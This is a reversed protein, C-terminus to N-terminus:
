TAQQSYSFLPQYVAIVTRAEIILAYRTSAEVSNISVIITIGKRSGPEGVYITAKNEIKRRTINM